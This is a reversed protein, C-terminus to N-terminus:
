NEEFCQTAVCATRCQPCTTHTTLWAQIAATDFTHYCSTVSATIPSIPEMTISCKEENKAADEAILWAIRKPLPSARSIPQPPPPPPPPVTVPPNEWLTVAQVSPEGVIPNGFDRLKWNSPVKVGRLRKVIPMRITGLMLFEGSCHIDMMQSHPLKISAYGGQPHTSSRHKSVHGEITGAYLVWCTNLTSWTVAHYTKKKPRLFALCNGTFTHIREPPM